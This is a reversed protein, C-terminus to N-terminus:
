FRTVSWQLRVDYHIELVRGSTQASVTTQQVAEVMGDFLREHTVTQDRVETTGFPLAEAASPSVRGTMGGSLAYPCHIIPKSPM